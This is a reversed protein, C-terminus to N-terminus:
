WMGDLVNNFCRLETDWDIELKEKMKQYDAKEYDCVIKKPLAEVQSRYKVKILSHDSKGLPSHVDIKEVSEANTTFFLDILSPKNTGRGRTPTKIHQILFSDRAAEIFKMDDESSSSVTKWNIYKRNFDGAVVQHEYRLM